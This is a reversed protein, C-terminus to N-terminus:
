GKGVGGPPVSQGQYALYGPNSWQLRDLVALTWCRVKDGVKYNPPSPMRINAIDVSPADEQPPTAMIKKKSQIQSYIEQIIEEAMNKPLPKGHWLEKDEIGVPIFCSFLPVPLVRAGPALLLGQPTGEQLSSSITNDCVLLAWCQAGGHCDPFSPQSVPTWHAAVRRSGTGQACSVPLVPAPHIPVAIRAAGDEQGSHERGQDGVRM